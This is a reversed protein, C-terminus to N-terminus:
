GTASARKTRTRRKLTTADLMAALVALVVAWRADNDPLESIQSRTTEILAALSEAVGRLQPHRALDPRCCPILALLM